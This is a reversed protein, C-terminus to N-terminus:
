RLCYLSDMTCCHIQRPWPHATAINVDCRLYSIPSIIKGNDQKMCDTIISACQYSITHCPLTFYKRCFKDIHYWMTNKKNILEIRNDWNLSTTAWRDLCRAPRRKIALEFGVGRTIPPAMATHGPHRKSSQHYFLDIFPIKKQPKHAQFIWYFEFWTNSYVM